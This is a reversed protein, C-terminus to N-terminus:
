ALAQLLSKAAGFPNKRLDPWGEVVLRSDPTLRYQGKGRCVLEVVKKESVRTSADFTLIMRAPTQEFRKISLRALVIKVKIVELLSSVPEPIRGFRDLLEERLTEVETDSRCLSLRRYLSLREGPDEVYHEPIFAPVHFHIEPTMEEVVDEGRIERVAKEMLQTYLEFGVAAIHGSQSAGLLNGAGRIELDQIALQFGSGLASLEQIARLRRAADHSLTLDGPILFYAYAQHNGRGVRGRLQYLDALGFREAHNILITNATPIDLGSEIISTCVLLNYERKVFQLMVKELEREKMQGHAIALSAEPVLRRLHHAISTINQVRHTVFFVQGGRDLERRIAEQILDDDYRVVFTRIALRNEPPTQILSLDRIGSIAMQLTRPIPTATLTMVDVLKRLQKLKEKHSVGFRHEEDIVVLGLDRFAVDKQLLRHTGVVIDVKGERLRKLVEKQERASKFRSLAEIVVPYTKFRESFTQHHQQALVTTPVLIAMQKGDMVARYAARLAVETKGFGVDGCILRDMPKSNTMDSMVEDIAKVQDPTEEYEFTAEFERYSRDPPTFPNGTFVQRAAYLDILDKVMETVAAKAKRMARQWSAGGLKDLKPHKGDGGIYRQILNLRDVPVYVKDGDFYELLLYDNAVGEFNLHKLGKYLGVGYDIHVVYDDERLERYSALTQGRRGKGEGVRRREGFIEEETLLSWGEQVNRFGSSLSGVLLTIQGTGAQITDWFGRERELRVDTGYESFLDRLREAQGATHSVVLTTIGKEQWHRLTRLLISFPSAEGTGGKSSLASRMERQLTEHTEMEFSYAQECRPAPVPGEHLFVTRFRDLSSSLDEHNLFLSEPRPVVGKKAEAKEHRDEIFQSFDKAEREVEDGEGIFVVANDRLYHFLTSSSRHSAESPRDRSPLLLAQEMFSVTVSRQTEVEFPRISTLRDGDFELRLPKEYFPTYVDIIIGRVSYDGREEVITAPVYGGQGLFEVLRDREVEEGVSLSFVSDKLDSPPLVRQMLAKVSAVVMVEENRLLSFLVNVRERVIEPHPPLDDYPLTEYEPFLLTKQGAEKQFFQLDELLTEATRLEPVIFLFPGKM